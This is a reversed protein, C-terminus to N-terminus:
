EKANNLSPLDREEKSFLESVLQINLKNSSVVNQMKGTKEKM